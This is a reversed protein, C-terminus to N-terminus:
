NNVTFKLLMTTRTGKYQCNELYCDRIILVNSLSQHYLMSSRFLIIMNMIYSYRQYSFFICITFSIYM